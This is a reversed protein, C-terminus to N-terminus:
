KKLTFGVPVQLIDSDYMNIYLIKPKDLGEYTVEYKDLMGSDGFLGNKTSFGCCSGLRQYSIQEGNPGALANLFRREDKPGGGEKGVMIPKKETYGYTADTAYQKILFVQDNVLEQKVNPSGYDMMGRTKGGVKATTQCGVFLLTIGLVCFLRRM